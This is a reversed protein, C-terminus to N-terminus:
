AILQMHESAALKCLLSAPLKWLMSQLPNGNLAATRATTAFQMSIGM